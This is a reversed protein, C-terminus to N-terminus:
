FTFLLTKPDYSKQQSFPLPPTPEFYMVKKNQKNNTKLQLASQLKMCVAHSTDKKVLLTKELKNARGVSMTDNVKCNTKSKPRIHASQLLDHSAALLVEASAPVPVFARDTPLLRLDKWPSWLNARLLQEDIKCLCLQTLYNPSM